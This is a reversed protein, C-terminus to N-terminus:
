KRKVFKKTLLFFVGGFKFFMLRLLNLSGFRINIKNVQRKCFNSKTTVIPILKAAAAVPDILQTEFEHQLKNWLNTM